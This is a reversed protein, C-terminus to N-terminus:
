AAAVFVRVCYKTFDRAFEPRCAHIAGPRDPRAIWKILSAHVQTNFLVKAALADFGGIAKLEDVLFDTQAIRSCGEVIVVDTCTGILYNYMVWFALIKRLLTAYLALGKGSCNLAHTFEHADNLSFFLHVETRSPLELTEIVM